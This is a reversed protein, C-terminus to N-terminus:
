RSRRGARALRAADILGGVTGGALVAGAVLVVAMLMWGVPRGTTSTGRGARVQRDVQGAVADLSGPATRWVAVLGADTAMRQVATQDAHSVAPRATAPDIILATSPTLDGSPNDHMPAGAATGYGLVAGGDTLGRLSRYPTGVAAATQEGDTFVFLVLRRHGPAAGARATANRIALVPLDLRSGRAFRTPEQELVDLLAAVAGADRTFPVAQTAVSDFTIVGFRAGAYRGVLDAIDARVGDLRPRGGAYDLAGMSGTTDVVFLVDTDTTLRAVTTHGVQPDAAAAALALGGAIWWRRAPASSGRRQWGVALAALAVVFAGLVWWGIVPHLSM